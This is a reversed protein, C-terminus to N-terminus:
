VDDDEDDADLIDEVASMPDSLDIEDDDIEFLDDETLEIEDIVDDDDDDSLTPPAAADPAKGRATPSVVTPGEEPGGLDVLDVQVDEPSIERPEGDIQVVFVVPGVKLRDGAALVQESIRQGNVYTGNASELDVLRIEDHEVIVECHQRSVDALPVRLDCDQRRGITNKGPELEFERREKDKFMVLVADM